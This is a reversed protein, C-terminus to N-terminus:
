FLEMVIELYNNKGGSFVCCTTIYSHMGRELELICVTQRSFTGVPLRVTLNLLPPSVFHVIQNILQSGHDRGTLGHSSLEVFESHQPLSHLVQFGEFTSRLGRPSKLPWHHQNKNVRFAGTSEAPIPLAKESVVQLGEMRGWSSRLCRRSLTPGRVDTENM